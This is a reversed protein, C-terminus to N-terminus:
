TSFQPFSKQWVVGKARTLDNRVYWHVDTNNSLKFKIFLYGFDVLIYSDNRFITSLQKLHIPHSPKSTRPPKESFPSKPLPVMLFVAEKSCLMSVIGKIALGDHQFMQVVCALCAALNNCNMFWAEWLHWKKRKSACYQHYAKSLWMHLWKYVLAATGISIGQSIFDECHQHYSGSMRIGRFCHDSASDQFLTRNCGYDAVGTRALNVERIPQILRMLHM